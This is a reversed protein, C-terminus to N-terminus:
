LVVHFFLADLACLVYLVAAYLNRRATLLKGTGPVFWMTAVFVVAAFGLADMALHIGVALRFGDVTPLLLLLGFTALFVSVASRLILRVRREAADVPATDSRPRAPTPPASVPPLIPVANGDPTTLWAGLRTAATPIARVLLFAAGWPLLIVALGIYSAIRLTSARVFALLV